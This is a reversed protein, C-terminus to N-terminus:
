ENVPDVNITKINRSLSMEEGQPLPYKDVQTLKIVSRLAATFVRWVTHIRLM